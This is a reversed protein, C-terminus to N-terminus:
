GNRVNSNSSHSLLAGFVLSAVTVLALAIAGCAAVSALCRPWSTITMAVIRQDHGRQITLWSSPWGYGSWSNFSAMVINPASLSSNAISFVGLFTLVIVIAFTLIRVHRDTGRRPFSENM